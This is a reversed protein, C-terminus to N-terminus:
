KWIAGQDLYTPEGRKIQELTKPFSKDKPSLKVAKEEWEIAQKIRGLKYLLNAYTDLHGDENDGHQIIKGMWELAKKLLKKDNVYLFTDWAFENIPVYENALNTPPYEDLEDFYTKTYSTMNQHQQYWRRRALYVNKIAYEESFHECIMKKLKKWDAEVLDPEIKHDRRGPLSMFMVESNPVKKGTITTTEGKQMRFFSDVIRVQITNNVAEKSFGNKGMVQDIKKYDKLFFQLAKSDLKLVFSYWLEINEKTYREAESLGSAYELHEKFLQKELATDGLKRAMRSMYPMRDYHKIGQKYESVLTRYEKYPDNYVTGNTLVLKATDLFKQVPRFGEIKYLPISEPSLFILSPYSTVSYDNTIKKADKYWDIIMQADNETKDMQAKVAIFHQNIFNSVTDNPYVYKDMMKCPGCWTTYADVFIYKNEVKAKQKIQEWSLGTTWRIGKGEEIGPGEKTMISQTSANNQAMLLFPLSWTFLSLIGKKM